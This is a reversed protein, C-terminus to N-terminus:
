SKRQLVMVESDFEDKVSGFIEADIGVCEYKDFFKLYHERTTPEFVGIDGEKEAKWKGTEQNRLLVYKANCNTVFRAYNEVVDPEMEQFSFYNVFLDIEGTIRPIQWPCLVAAKYKEALMSIDITEWDRTVNYSAVNDTGFVSKLYQTSVYAVPPIDIDIYFFKQSDSKIFIEGLTGFGGGIELVRKIKRTDVLKKLYTLGRLYNFMSRSYKRGNFCHQLSPNGEGSESVHQLKPPVDSDAAMFIRYDINPDIHIKKEEEQYMPVFGFGAKNQRFSDLGSEKINKILDPIFSAWFNTPRYESPAQAMDEILIDLLSM